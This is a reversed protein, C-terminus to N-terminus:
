IVETASGCYFIFTADEDMEDMTIKKHVTAIKGDDQTIKIVVGGKESNDENVDTYDMAKIASDLAAIADANAKVTSTNNEGALAVIADANAKVTSTNGEGALASVKGDVYGTSAYPADEIAKVRATVESLAGTDAYTALADEVFKSVTKDGTDVTATLGAINDNAAQLQGLTAYNGINIKNELATIADEIRKDVTEPAISLDDSTYGLNQKINNIAENMASADEPHNEIWAALEQLTKFDADAEGSLLQAALEENAITRVSKGSDSAILTDVKTKNEGALANAAGASDKAAQIDAGITNTGDYGATAAQVVDMEGELTTIKGEATTVRGQLAELDTQAAKTGIAAEAEDMRNKLDTVQSGLGESSGGVSAQLAAIAATMSDGTYAVEGIKTNIGAIADANAKVTTNNGEGALATLNTQVGQISTNLEGKATAIDATVTSHKVLKDTTTAEEANTKDVKTDLATTTNSSLNSIKTNLAANGIDTSDTIAAIRAAEDIVAQLEAATALKRTGKAIEAIKSDIDAVGTLEKIEKVVDGAVAQIWPLEAFTHVGDGVKIGVIPTPKTGDFSPTATTVEAICIEGKLPKFTSYNALLDYKNLIRTKIQNVAM